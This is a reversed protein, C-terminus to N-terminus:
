YDMGTIQSRVARASKEVAYTCSIRNNETDAKLHKICAELWAHAEPVCKLVLQQGPTAPINPSAGYDDAAIHKMICGQYAHAIAKSEADDGLGMSFIGELTNAYANVSWLCMSLIIVSKKM